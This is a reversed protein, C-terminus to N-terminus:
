FRVALDVRIGFPSPNALPSDELYSLRWIADVRLFKFINEVGAGVEYYGKTPAQISNGDETTNYEINENTLSGIMGRATVVERWKLRRFLPIKNFFLGVFHHELNFSAYQDTSFEFFNMLNYSYRAYAYTNNGPAIELLPYPLTGFTKGAELTLISKGFPPLLFPKTFGFYVKHFEYDSGLLNPIGYSYNLIFTPHPTYVELREVGIGLWKKGLRYLLNVEIESTSIPGPEENIESFDLSGVGYVDRRRFELKTELDKVYESRFYGRTERVLSLRDFPERALVSSLFSGTRTAATTYRAGIQEIDYNHYLGVELRPQDKFLWKGGLSYKLVGDRTGYAVHAYIRYLDNRDGYTRGGFRLRVGEVPNFALTSLLPGLDYGEMEWYGSLVFAIVDLYTNFAPTNQLTDIMSYIGQEQESLEKKRTNKWFEPDNSNEIMKERSFDETRYFEEARPKNIVYDNFETTKIGYLGYADKNDQLAFDVIIYDEKLLWISDHYLQYERRVSLDNVFNVNADGSMKMDIKTIAWTAEDVWMEGKFTLEQKRKPIFQIFFQTSGNLEVSDTLYYKYSLLGLTSIPSVFGKEFIPLYNDYLNYDQYLAGMFEQVGANQDFGANQSARMVEKERKPESRYYYDYATEVIFVPLFVKGNVDSTDAYDFVFKLPKFVARDKFKDDINNLDFEIKEYKQYEYANLRKPSNRDKNDWINRLIVHAPNEKEKENPDATVVVENLNISESKLRITVEQEKGPVIALATTQYGLYTAKISDVRQVTQIEFTGDFDTITGISTRPFVVNAFPVPENTEYDLVTGRVLTNQAAAPLCILLLALLGFHRWRLTPMHRAQNREMRQM